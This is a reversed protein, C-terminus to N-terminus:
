ARGDDFVEPVQKIERLRERYQAVTNRAIEPWSFSRAAQVSRESL